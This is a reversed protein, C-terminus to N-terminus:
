SRAWTERRSESRMSPKAASGNRQAQPRSWRMPTEASVLDRIRENHDASKCRLKTGTTLAAARWQNAQSSYSQAVPAGHAGAPLDSKKAATARSWSRARPRCHRASPRTSSASAKNAGKIRRQVSKIDEAAPLSEPPKSGDKIMIGRVERGVKEATQELLRQGHAGTSKIRAETEQIRFLNAALERKGMFDLPSRSAPVRKLARIESLNRNYLGRYGANQFFAYNDVGARRAVSSLSKEGDAVDGRIVIREVGDAQEVYLRCAEAYTVFYAQARAVEQKRVDGNMATLYCAFRSLKYDEITKGDIERQEALFNDGLAVDIGMCVTMAKQISKKFSKFDDYGLLTMLDSAWWFMFGNVRCLSEFGPRAPDTHFPNDDQAADDGM